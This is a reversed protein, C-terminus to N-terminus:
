RNNKFYKYMYENILFQIIKNIYNGTLQTVLIQSKSVSLFIIEGLNVGFISNLQTSEFAITRINDDLQVSNEGFCLVTSSVLNGEKANDICSGSSVDNVTCGEGLWGSCQIAKSGIIYGKILECEQLNSESFTCQYAIIDSTTATPESVKKYELDFYIIESNENTTISACTYTTIGNETTSTTEYIKLSGDTEQICYQEPHDTVCSESGSTVNCSPLSAAELLIVSDDQRVKVSITTATTIGPFDTPNLITHYIVSEASNIKVSESNSICLYYNSDNTIISGIKQCTTSTSASVPLIAVCNRNSCKIIKKSTENKDGNLYYGNFSDVSTCTTGDSCYILPKDLKDDGSNIYYGHPGDIEECNSATCYLLPKSSKNEGVNLYYGFARQVECGQDNCYIFPYNSKNYGSNIYNGSGQIATCQTASSCSILPKSQKDSGSNLYYTDGEVSFSECSRNTCGILPNSGSM